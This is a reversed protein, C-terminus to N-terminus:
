EDQRSITKSAWDVAELYRPPIDRQDLNLRGALQGLMPWNGKEYAIAYDLIDRFRGEQGKLAERLEPLVPLDQLIEEFPRGLIVELTSFMGLLFLDQAQDAM